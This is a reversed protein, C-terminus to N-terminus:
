VDPPSDNDHKGASQAGRTRLLTDIKDVALVALSVLLYGYVAQATGVALGIISSMLPGEGPGTSDWYAAVVAALVAWICVTYVFGRYLGFKIRLVVIISFWAGCFVIATAPMGAWRMAGLYVAVVATLLLLKRL